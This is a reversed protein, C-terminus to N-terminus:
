QDDGGAEQEEVGLRREGNIGEVAPYRKMKPVDEEDEEM